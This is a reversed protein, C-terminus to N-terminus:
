LIVCEEAKEREAKEGAAKADLYTQRQGNAADASARREDSDHRRGLAQRQRENAAHAAQQELLARRACEQQLRQVQEELAGRRRQAQQDEALARARQAQVQAVRRAEEVEAAQRAAHVREAERAARVRKEQAELQQRAFRACDAAPWLGLTRCLVGCQHSEFFKIIGLAGKDTAGNAHKGNQVSHIVPDTLTFGDTPNWVGQIDCVLKRGETAHFTYHSFCQPVESPDMQESPAGGAAEQAAATAHAAEWRRQRDNKSPKPTQDRAMADSDGAVEDEEDEELIAGLGAAASSSGPGSGCQGPVTRVGGANNNYKVYQGDLEPEALVHLVYEGPVRYVAPQVFRLSLAPRQAMKRARGFTHALAQAESHLRCFTTHFDLDHLLEVFKSQKTVLWPGTRVLDGSSLLTIESGRHVLREAGSAFPVKRFAIGASEKEFEVPQLGDTESSYVFKRVGHRVSHWGSGKILRSERIDDADDRRVIVNRPTL